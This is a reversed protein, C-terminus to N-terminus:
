RAVGSRQADFRVLLGDVGVYSVGNRGTHKSHYMAADARELLESASAADIPLAAVGISASIRVGSSSAAPRLPTFDAEAIRRRLAEAREIADAKGCDEFVLCFEDGGNRAVLDREDRAAARLMRALERLLADGCAHGYADNWEKFRDTDVFLLALRTSPVIRARETATVLRQRFARPGYLGTLGDFEARRRDDERDLALAYAPSAHEALRVLRECSEGDLAGRASMVLVCVRGADIALPVALAAVDLPHLPRAGDALTVRHGAALARVPLAHADDRALRSGAFYALREGAAYVCLLAGDHEEYFAVADILPVAAQASRVLEDRVAGVSVRAAAALARAAELLAAERAQAFRLALRAARAGARASLAVTASAAVAGAAGGVVTLDLLAPGTV